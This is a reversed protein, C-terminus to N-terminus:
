SSKRRTPKKKAPAKRKPEAPAAEEKVPAEKKAPAKKKTPKKEPKAEPEEDEEETVFELQYAKAQTLSVCGVEDVLGFAKAEQPSLYLDTHGTDKIAKELKEPSMNCNRALEEMLMRNIAEFEKMDTRMGEISGGTGASIQHVMARCLPAAFRKGPSGASLIVAGASYAHSVNYTLFEIKSAKMINLIEFCSVVSGGISDIRILAIGAKREFELTRVADRFGKAMKDNVEGSLYITPTLPDLIDNDSDLSFLEELEHDNKKPKKSSTDTDDKKTILIKRVSPM